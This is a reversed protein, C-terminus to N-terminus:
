IGGPGAPPAGLGAGGPRFPNPGGMPAIMGGGGGGAPLIQPAGGLPGLIRLSYFGDSRKSAKLKPESDLLFLLGTTADGKKKYSDNFKFKLGLQMESMGADHLVIQGDLTVDLDKGTSGWKNIKAVGDKVAIQIPMAGIDIKPLTIDESGFVAKLAPVKFPVVGDSVWFGELTLDVNGNAREARSEGLTLDLSGKLTGGVPVGIADRLPSLENMSVNDLELHITRDWRAAGKLPPAGPKPTASKHTISGEITGGMARASFSVDKASSFLSGFSVRARIEDARVTSPSKTPDNPVTTLSVDKLVVGTLWSPELKGISLIQHTPGPPQSRDFEAVVRDRVRDWPFSWYSFLVFATLFFSTYGVWPGVTRALEKLREIRPDTVKDAVVPALEGGGPAAPQEPQASGNV